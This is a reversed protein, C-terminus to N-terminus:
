DKGMSSLNPGFKCVFLRDNNMMTAVTATTREAHDIYPAKKEIKQYKVLVNRQDTLRLLKLQVASQRPENKRAYAKASSPYLPMDMSSYKSCQYILGKQPRKYSASFNSAGPLYSKLNIRSFLLTPFARKTCYLSITPIVPVRKPHKRLDEPKLPDCYLTNVHSSLKFNFFLRNKRFLEFLVPSFSAINSSKM